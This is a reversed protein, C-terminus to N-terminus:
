IMTDFVRSLLTICVIVMLRAQARNLFPRDSTRARHDRVNHREVLFIWSRLDLTFTSERCWFDEADKSVNTNVIRNTRCTMASGIQSPTRVMMIKSELLENKEINGGHYTPEAIMQKTSAISKAM